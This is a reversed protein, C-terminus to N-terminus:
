PAVSGKVEFTGWTGGKEPRWEGVGVGFGARQLLVVITQSTLKDADFEIQLHAFWGPGFSMRWRLDASDIGVRVVDERIRPDGENPHLRVLSTFDRHDRGDGYIRIGQNVITRPIGLDRHAAGAIAGKFASVPIGFTGDELRYTADEAEHEPVAVERMRSREGLKKRRIADKAKEAFRHPVYLDTGVISVVMRELRMPELTIKDSM